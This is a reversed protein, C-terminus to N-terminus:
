ARITKLLDLAEQQKRNPTTDLTFTPTDAGRGPCRCTNRVITSLHDLLGQFSYVRSGDDLQQTNVKHRAQDSRQAPAVPDRTAKAAPDEDANLLPRWAEQLHWLVYYALMCLFIHARVRHEHRHYIPRVLLDVSKFSRFAREVQGLLKYSRVTDEANMQEQSLSTRVIYLGDLAAETAVKEQDIAYDFHSDGITLKFHKGVKYKNVVRGVRIGIQDQGQLRGHAIRDRIRDLQQAIAEMQRQCRARRPYTKKPDSCVPSALEAAIRELDVEATFGEDRIEVRYHKGIPYRALIAHVHTGIAEQGHLRGQEVRSRIKDLEATTAELLSQRKAARRRALESNRCAVLREGPFDPHSVEFLNREDFLGMQVTGNDVLHRIAEPRLAGIWDMGEIEHLALIQMQTLMGRDGILVFREIGFAKRVKEVQPLLTKPDGTNGAFVAVSVPIGRRNTLLGYNVQLKGKKGDRNYGRAALPCSVGEFYSSTLDFLALDGAALHRHALKREIRGQRQLLWDLAAYLADEDAEEVGLLEPLTTDSWWQTTALKSRPKLIRAVVMAVVLDRERSPRAAILEFFELRRLAHLVAKVHGHLRSGGEVIKFAAQPPVLTEGQLTRSLVALAEPPLRSLNALTRTKVKGDERYSERLLIAPPSDRNPITAIYM